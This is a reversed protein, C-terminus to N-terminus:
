DSDVLVDALWRRAENVLVANTEMTYYALAIVAQSLAVGKARLWTADDVGVADRFTQRESAALMKWAVMVDYAPDGVCMADFDIVGSLRGDSALLNRADLDGHIWVGPGQWAPARLAAQWLSTARDVDLEDRLAGIADRTADDREYLPGGRGEPGPAGDGDIFQLAIILRALDLPTQNPHALKDPTASEGDVWHCVTWRFPYERIPSGLAIPVPAVLPLQPAILPLWHFTKAPIDSADSVRPLRVALQSGLRYVANDTGLPKVAEVSLDAWLPFQTWLLRRVLATDTLVEDAHM